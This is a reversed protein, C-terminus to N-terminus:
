LSIRLRLFAVNQDYEQIGASADFRKVHQYTGILSLNRNILWQASLALIADTANQSASSYERREYSLGAGIIINRQLEHDVRLTGITRLFGEGGSRVSDDVGRRVVLTLTTLQTPLYVFRADIGIGELSRRSNDRFERRAYGVGFSAQYIGDFDYVFGVLAELTLSDIFRGRRGEGDIEEARVSLTASRGPSISYALTSGAAYSNYDVALTNDALALNEGGDFAVHRFQGFGSLSVRNFATRATVRALQEDFPLPERAGARQLDLTQVSLFSHRQAVQLEVSSVSDIDYRGVGGILWDVTDLDRQDTYNLTEIRANMGLAHVSWQSQLSAAVSNSLVPSGRQNRETGFLNDDYGIGTEAAADLRFSGLRVGAPDFEPRPRTTVTVGRQVAAADAPQAVADPALLSGAIALSAAAAPLWGSRTAPNARPRPPCRNSM